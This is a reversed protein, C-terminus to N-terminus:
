ILVVLDNSDLVLQTQSNSCPALLALVVHHNCSLLRSIGSEGVDAPLKECAPAVESFRLTFGNGRRLWLAVGSSRRAALCRYGDLKAEYSWLGGDPLERVAEAYM